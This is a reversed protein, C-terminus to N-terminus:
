IEFESIALSASKSLQEQVQNRVRAYARTNFVLM